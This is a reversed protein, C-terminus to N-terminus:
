NLYQWEKDRIQKSSSSTETSGTDSINYNIHNM